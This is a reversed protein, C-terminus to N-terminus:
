LPQDQKWQQEWNGLESEGDYNPLYVINGDGQCSALVIQKDIISQGNYLNGINRNGCIEKGLQTVDGYIDWKYYKQQKKYILKDRCHGTIQMKTNANHNQDGKNKVPLIM